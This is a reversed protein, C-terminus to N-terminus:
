IKLSKLERDELSNLMILKMKDNKEQNPMKLVM